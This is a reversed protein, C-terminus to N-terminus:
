KHFVSVNCKIQPSELISLSLPDEKSTSAIAIDEYVKKNINKNSKDACVKKNIFNTDDNSFDSSNLSVSDKSHFELLKELVFIDLYFLYKTVCVCILQLFSSNAVIFKFTMLYNLLVIILVLILRGISILHMENRIHLEVSDYHIIEQCIYCHMQNNEYPCFYVQHSRLFIEQNTWFEHFNKFASIAKTNKLNNQHIESEEHNFIDHANRM